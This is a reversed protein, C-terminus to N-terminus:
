DAELVRRVLDATNRAGLKKMISSRYVEVTRPSIGLAYAIQKSSKGKIIQGLIVQERDTLKAQLQARRRIPEVDRNLRNLEEVAASSGLAELFRWQHDQRVILCQHSCAAEVIDEAFSSGIQYFCLVIMRRGRLM